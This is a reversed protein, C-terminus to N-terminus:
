KFRATRHRFAPQWRGGSAMRNLIDPKSWRVRAPKSIMQASRSLDSRLIEDQPGPITTRMRSFEAAVAVGTVAMAQLLATGPVEPSSLNSNNVQEASLAHQLFL